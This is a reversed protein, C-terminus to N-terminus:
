PCGASSIAVSPAVGGSAATYAVSCTAPTGADALQLTVTAGAASGGGVRTWNDASEINAAALIGVNFSTGLAQPYCGQLDISVGEMVAPGTGTCPIGNALATAKVLSAAAKMSGAIANLKAIRAKGQLDAYRPLAVAALVGLIVIVTVLEVLTFGHQRSAARRRPIKSPLVTSM